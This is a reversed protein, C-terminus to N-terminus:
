IWLRVEASYGQERLNASEKVWRETRSPHWADDKVQEHIVHEVVTLQPM